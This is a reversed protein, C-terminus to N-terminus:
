ALLGYSNLERRLAKADTFVIGHWGADRAAAINAPKDDIFLTKQPDLGFEKEHHVYIAPEPKILRLLASVSVGRPRKLFTFRECAEIFTDAAFNTLMTVDHGGEILANFIEVTEDIAGPIMAHWNQRFARILPEHTPFQAMLLAEATAWDRGRDQELNWADTCVNAFFWAREEEDPILEFFALEPNYSILVQGIDFVIHSITTNM